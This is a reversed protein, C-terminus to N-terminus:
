RFLNQTYDAINIMGGQSFFLANLIVVGVCMAAFIQPGHPSNLLKITSSPPSIDFSPFYLSSVRWTWLFENWFHWSLLIISSLIDRCSELKELLQHPRRLHSSSYFVSERETAMANNHKLVKQLYVMRQKQQDLITLRSRYADILLSLYFIGSETAYLQRFQDFQGVFTIWSVSASRCVPTKIWCIRWNQPLKKQWM